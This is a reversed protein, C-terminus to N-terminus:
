FGRSLIVQARNVVGIATGTHDHVTMSNQVYTSNSLNAVRVPCYLRSLGNISAGALNDGGDLFQDIELFYNLNSSNALRLKTERPMVGINHSKLTTSVATIAFIDSEYKGQIAYCIVSTVSSADTTCEGVMIRQVNSWSTGNSVKMFTTNSYDYWHQTDFHPPAIGYVTERETYGGTLVGTSLNRDIYLQIFSKNAPLNSWFATQDSTISSVYDIQGYKTDFGYAFALILPTASALLNISLGTGIQLFNAQGNVDVNGQLVTQRIPVHIKAPQLDAIANDLISQNIFGFNISSLTGREIWADNAENRQKWLNNATDAWNQFPYTPNPEVSGYHWQMYANMIDIGNQKGITTTLIQEL